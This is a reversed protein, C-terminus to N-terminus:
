ESGEDKLKPSTVFDLGWRKPLKSFMGHPEVPLPRVLEPVGDAKEGAVM